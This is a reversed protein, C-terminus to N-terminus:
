WRKYDKRANFLQSNANYDIHADRTLSKVKSINGKTEVSLFYNNAISNNILVEAQPDTTYSNPILPDRNEECFMGLLDDNSTPADILSYM